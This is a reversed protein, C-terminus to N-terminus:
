CAEFAGLLELKFAEEDEDCIRLMILFRELRMVVRLLKGLLEFTM